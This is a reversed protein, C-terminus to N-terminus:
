AGRSLVQRRAQGTPGFSRVPTEAEGHRGTGADDQQGAGKAKGGHGM